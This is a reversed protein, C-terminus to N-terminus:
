NKWSEIIETGTFQLHPLFVEVRDVTLRRYFGRAVLVTVQQGDPKVRIWTHNLPKGALFDQLTM